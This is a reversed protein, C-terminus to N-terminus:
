KTKVETYPYMQVGNQKIVFELCRKLLATIEIPAGDRPTAPVGKNGAKVSSGIKDMWTLANKINGGSIFGTKEEVYLEITLGEINM